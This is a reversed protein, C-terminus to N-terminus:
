FFNLFDSAFLKDNLITVSFFQCCFNAWLFDTELFNLQLSGGLLFNPLFLKVPVFSSKSYVQLLSDTSSVGSSFDTNLFGRLLTDLLSFGGLLFKMALIRTIFSEVFFLSLRLLFPLSQLLLVDVFFLKTTLLSVVYIKNLFSLLM